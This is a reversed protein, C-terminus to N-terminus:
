FIIFEKTFSTLYKCAKGGHMYMSALSYHIHPFIYVCKNHLYIKFNREIREKHVHAVFMYTYM